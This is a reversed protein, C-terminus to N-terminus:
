RTTDPSAVCAPDQQRCAAKATLRAVTGPDGVPGELATGRQQLAAAREQLATTSAALVEGTEPDAATGATTAEEGGRAADVTRPDGIPGGLAVARSYLAEARTQMAPTDADSIAFDAAEARIGDIPAISQPPRPGKIREAAAADVEPFQGCAAVCLCLGLWCLPILAALRRPGFM